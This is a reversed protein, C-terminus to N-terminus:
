AAAAVGVQESAADASPKEGLKVFVVGAVILAGGLFQVPEPLEDLLVWAFVLAALVETLAVFSALRSGLSRGAVIGTTYALAATVIGLGLVPLWWSVGGVSYAVDATAFTLPVLGALGLVALAISGISLGGAALVLPPLGNGEQASLIFYTAAGLMALLAWIVGSTSVEAGSFLDLVLVLGVLAIGGGLVTERAPRHGYRLWLWCVVAVPATYEILLAVGVQMQAVASFYAFQCGAVAVLGYVVLLRANTVLLRWRGRLQYIALPVLVFAALALRVLVAAGISWGADLLGKALAGSLGFAAASCLAFALGTATNPRKAARTRGQTSASM